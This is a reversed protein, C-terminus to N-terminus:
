QSITSFKFKIEFRIGLLPIADHSCVSELGFTGLSLRTEGLFCVKEALLDM